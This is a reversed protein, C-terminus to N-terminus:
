GEKWLPRLQSSCYASFIKGYFVPIQNKILKLFVLSNWTNFCYEWCWKLYLYIGHSRRARCVDFKEFIKTKAEDNVVAHTQGAETVPRPRTADDETTTAASPPSSPPLWQTDITINDVKNHRRLYQLGQKVGGTHSGPDQTKGWFSTEWCWM